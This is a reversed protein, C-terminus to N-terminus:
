YEQYFVSSRIEMLPLTSKSNFKLLTHSARAVTKFIHLLENM